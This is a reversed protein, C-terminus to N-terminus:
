AYGASRASIIWAPNHGAVCGGTGGTPEQHPKQGGCPFVSIPGIKEQILVLIGNLCTQSDNAIGIEFQSVVEPGKGVWAASSRAGHEGAMKESVV